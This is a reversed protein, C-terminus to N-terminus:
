YSNVLQAAREKFIFDTRENVVRWSSALEM